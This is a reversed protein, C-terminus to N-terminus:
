SCSAWSRAKSQHVLHVSLPKKLQPTCNRSFLLALCSASGRPAYFSVNSVTDPPKMPTKLRQFLRSIKHRHIKLIKGAMAMLQKVKVIETCHWRNSVNKYFVSMLLIWVMLIIKLPTKSCHYWAVVRSKSIGTEEEAIVFSSPWSRKRQEFNSPSRWTVLM